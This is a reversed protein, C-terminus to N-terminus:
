DNEVVTHYVSGLYFFLFEGLISVPACDGKEGEQCKNAVEQDNGLRRRM